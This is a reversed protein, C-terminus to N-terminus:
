DWGAWDDDDWDDWEIDIRKNQSSPPSSAGRRRELIARMAIRMAALMEEFASELHRWFEDPLGFNYRKLTKKFARLGMRFWKEWSFEDVNPSEDQQFESM